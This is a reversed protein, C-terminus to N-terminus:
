TRMLLNLYASSYNPRNNQIPTFSPRECQPPFTPQPHKLIPHQFSYKPIPPVLYCPLPSFQMILLKIIQVVWWINNPHDVRSSHSPRPMYRTHTLPSTCVPKPPSDQPFSVVESVCAYIPSLILIPRWSTPHPTHVPDFQGLIPVTQPFKHIRYFVKPNWLISPFEQSASFWNAEWSPSQQM